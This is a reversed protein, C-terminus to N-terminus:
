WGTKRGTVLAHKNLTGPYGGWVGGPTYYWASFVDKRYIWTRTPVYLSLVPLDNAVIEQLERVFRARASKRVTVIQARALEEFRANEYGRVRTFSRSRANTVSLMSRLTDPDGGLGGYGILAMQYNGAGANADATTTDLTKLKVDIGVARLDNVVIEATGTSFRTSTQLEPTFAGGTPLDRMGDGNRDVLGISTLLQRARAPDYAYTPLGKAVWESSPALIGTSGPRGRGYLVRRVLANRNIAYAVAHRYSRESFPFGKSLNFHLARTWEGPRTLIGFRKDDYFPQLVGPPAGEESDPAGAAIDGRRLALLEDSTPVLELSRVVPAGLFYDPNAVWRYSGTAGDYSVFRYPGSGMTAKADRYRAPDSVTSWVHQPIIPIRGAILVPFPAYRTSLQFVVTTDDPAAVARIFDLNGSIGLANRGPGTRMYDFTFVVDRATLPRGDQWKVGPRLRFVYELGDPSRRWARALWPIVSGTSDKWLLTDFSFGVYVLGPGRVYSFPQPYGFDGGSLRILPVPKPRAAAEARSRAEGAAALLLVAALTSTAVLVTRRTM